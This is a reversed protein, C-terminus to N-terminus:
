KLSSKQHNYINDMLESEIKLLSSDGIEFKFFFSLNFLDYSYLFYPYASVKRDSDLKLVRM